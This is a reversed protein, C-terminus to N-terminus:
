GWSHDRGSGMVSRALCIAAVRGHFAGFDIAEDLKVIAVDFKWGEKNYKKHPTATGEIRFDVLLTPTSWVLPHCLM